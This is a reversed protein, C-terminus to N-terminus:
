LGGMEVLARAVSVINDLGGAFGLGYFQSVAVPNAVVPGRLLGDFAIDTNLALLLANAPM